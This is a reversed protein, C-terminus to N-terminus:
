WTMVIRFTMEEPVYSPVINQNDPLEYGFDSDYMEFEVWGIGFIFDVKQIYTAQQVGDQDVDEIPMIYPLSRQINENGVPTYIYGRVNGTTFVYSTLAPVDFQARFYNNFGGDQFNTYKWQSKTVTINVYKWNTGEGQPGQPGQPGMPGECACLVLASILFLFTRNLVNKMDNFM